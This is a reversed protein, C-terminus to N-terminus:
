KNKDKIRLTVRDFNLYVKKENEGNRNKLIKLGFDEVEDSSNELDDNTIDDTAKNFLGIVLNADQELDGSERLESLLPFPDKLKKRTASLRNVQAGSVIPLLYDTDVLATRLITDSVKKVKEYGTANEMPSIKQIYDIFLAGINKYKNRYLAILDRLEEDRRGEANILWLRGSATLENFEAKAKEIAQNDAREAQIYQEIALTNKYQDLQKDALLSILKTALQQCTEEYTFFFFRKAPYLKVMNLFLNLLVTTKGAGPRGAIITIAGAQISARKDLETWGTKLGEQKIKTDSIFSSLLYPEVLKSIGLANINPLVERYLSQLDELKGDSLLQSAKRQLESYSKKQREKQRKEHFDKIKPELLVLPIDLGQTITDLFDKSDIPDSLTEELAIAENLIEDREQDTHKGQKSHKSLLCNAIYKSGSQAKSIIWNFEDISHERLFEDPDKYGEPFSLVYSKAGRENIKRIARAIGDRGATDQDLALYFYQAGGKIASDLQADSPIAKGVGVFGKLGRQTAILPDLYGETVVLAREGKNLAMNFFQESTKLGKSNLYKPESNDLSRFVFGQLRGIYDRFPIALRGEVRGDSFIESFINVNNVLNLRNVIADKLATLSSVYGLDLSAIEEPIYKRQSILYGLAEKNEQLRDKFFDLASELIKERIAHEAYKKEDYDKSDFSIGAMDALYKLTQGSTTHGQATKTYEFISASYNCNNARNCKLFTGSHYIYAQRKGCSPCRLELYDGKHKPDLDRLAEARDLKEYIGATIGM